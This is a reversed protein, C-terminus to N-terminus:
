AFIKYDKGYGACQVEKECRKIANEIASFIQNVDSQSYKM